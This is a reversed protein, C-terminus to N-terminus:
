VCMCKDHIGSAGKQIFDNRQSCDVSVGLVQGNNVASFGERRM